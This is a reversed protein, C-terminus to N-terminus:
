ELLDCQWMLNMLNELRDRTRRPKFFDDSIRRIHEGDFYLRAKIKEPDYRMTAVNIHMTILRAILNRFYDSTPKASFSLIDDALFALSLQRIDGSNIMQITDDDRWENKISLVWLTCLRLGQVLLKSILVHDEDSIAKELKASLYIPNKNEFKSAQEILEAISSGHHANLWSNLLDPETLGANQMFGDFLTELTYHLGSIHYEIESFLAELCLRQLQRLQLIVWRKHIVSLDDGLDIVKKKTNNALFMASRIDEVGDIDFNTTVKKIYKIVAMRPKDIVRIDEIPVLANRFIEAEADLIEDLRWFSFLESAQKFSAKQPKFDDILYYNNSKRLEVDLTEAIKEGLKTAHWLNQIDTSGVFRLGGTSKLPPGYWLAAMLGTSSNVRKWYKFTLEHDKADAAKPKMTNGPLSFEEGSNIHGMTFLIEVKERLCNIDNLTPNKSKKSVTYAKWYVWSMLTFCRLHIANNNIGPICQDMFNFNVQRIGLFDVGSKEPKYLTTFQPSVRTM